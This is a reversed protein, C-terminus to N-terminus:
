SRSRRTRAKLRARMRWGSCPPSRRPLVLQGDRAVLTVNEITQANIAIDQGKVVGSLNEFNGAANVTVAGGATITGELNVM